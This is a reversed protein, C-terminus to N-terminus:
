RGNKVNELITLDSQKGIVKFNKLTDGVSLEPLRFLHRNYENLVIYNVSDKAATAFFSAPTLGRNKELREQYSFLGVIAKYKGIENFIFQMPALVIMSKKNKRIYTNSIWENEAPSSKNFAIQADYYIGTVVALVVLIRTILFKKKPNFFSLFDFNEPLNKFYYLTLVFYFPLLLVIYKVTKNFGIFALLLTLILTFYLLIPAKKRLGYYGKIVVVLFVISYVIESPSHYWRLQEDFLRQFASLLLGIITLGNKGTETFVTMQDRWLSFDVSTRIDIFYLTILLLVVIGYVFFDKYRKFLLFLIATAGTFILGNLHTLVAVGSLLSLLVVPLYSRSNSELREELLMFLAFGITALAVEPRYVFSYEFILPHLLLLMMVPRFEHKQLLKKKKVLYYYLLLILVLFYLLSVSKLVALSFGFLKVALYGQWVWLKHYVLLKIENQKYHRMLVNKVRGEKALWYVQEGIWADDTHPPREYLSFLYFLISVIVFSSTVIHSTKRNM